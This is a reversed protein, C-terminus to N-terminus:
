AARVVLEIYDCRVCSISSARLKGREALRVWRRLESHLKDGYAQQLLGITYEIGGRQAARSALEDDLPNHNIFRGVYRACFDAYRETNLVFAHFARDVPGHFMVYPKDSESHNAVLFWQLFAELLVMARGESKAWHERVMTQIIPQFDYEALVAKWKEFGFLDIGSKM